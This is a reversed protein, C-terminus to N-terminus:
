VTLNAFLMRICSPKVWIKISKFKSIHEKPIFLTVIVSVFNDKNWKQVTTNKSYVFECIQLVILFRQIFHLILLCISFPQFLPVSSGSFTLLFPQKYYLLWTKLVPFLYILRFCLFTLIWFKSECKNWLINLCIWTRIHEQYHISIFFLLIRILDRISLSTFQLRYM